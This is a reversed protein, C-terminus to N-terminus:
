SPSSSEPACPNAGLAVRPAPGSARRGSARELVRHAGRPVEPGGPVGATLLPNTRRREVHHERSGPGSPAAPAPSRPLSDAVRPYLAPVGDIAPFPTASGESPPPYDRDLDRTFGTATMGARQPEVRKGPLGSTRRAPRGRTTCTSSAHRRDPANESTWT